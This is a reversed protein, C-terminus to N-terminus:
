LAPYVSFCRRSCLVHDTDAMTPHKFNSARSHSDQVTDPTKALIFLCIAINPLHSLFLLKLDLFPMGHCWLAVDKRKQILPFANVLVVYLECMLILEGAALSCKKHYRFIGTLITSICRLTGKKWGFSVSEIVTNLM